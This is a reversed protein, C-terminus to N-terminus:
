PGEAAARRLLGLREACGRCLWVRVTPADAWFFAEVQGAMRMAESAKVRYLARLYEEGAYPEGPEGRRHHVCSRDRAAEGEDKIAM